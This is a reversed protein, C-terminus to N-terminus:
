SALQFLGLDSLSSLSIAPLIVSNNAENEVPSPRLTESGDEKLASLDSTNFVFLPFYLVNRCKLSLSFTFLDGLGSSM